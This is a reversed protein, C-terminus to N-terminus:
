NGESIIKTICFLLKPVHQLVARLQIACFRKLSFDINTWTIFHCQLGNGPGINGNPTLEILQFAFKICFWSREIFIRLPILWYWQQQHGPEKQQSSMLLGDVPKFLCILTKWSCPNSSGAGDWCWSIIYFVSISEQKMLVTWCMDPKFRDINGKTHKTTYCIGYPGISLLDATTRSIAQHWVSSLGHASGIIDLIALVM